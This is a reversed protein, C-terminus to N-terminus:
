LKFRKAIPITYPKGTKIISGSDGILLINKPIVVQFQDHSGRIRGYCTDNRSLGLYILSMKVQEFRLYGTEDTV